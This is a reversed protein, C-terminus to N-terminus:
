FTCSISPCSGRSRVRLLTNQFCCDHLEARWIAPKGVESRSGSAEAVLVDGAKLRYTEVEAPDFHM